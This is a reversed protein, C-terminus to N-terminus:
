DRNIDGGGSTKRSVLQGPGRYTVDGGGSARLYLEKRGYVRADGGGSAEAYCVDTELKGANLDAGSSASATLKGATGSLTVDAGSSVSVTMRNVKVELDVDAGSSTHLTLDDASLITEGELDAGSSVEISNLNKVTVYAKVSNNRGFVGKWGNRRKVGLVLKNGRQESIVEEDDFGKAEIRVSETNGQTLYVNVGASIDLAAIGSFTQNRKVDQASLCSSVALSMGLYTILLPTKM